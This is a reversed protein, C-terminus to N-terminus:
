LEQDFNKNVITTLESNTQKNYPFETNVVKKMLFTPLYSNIRGNRKLVFLTIMTILVIAFLVGFM